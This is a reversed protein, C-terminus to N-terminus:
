TPILEVDPYLMSLAEDFTALRGGMKRALGVLYADTVQAHGLIQSFDVEAYSLSDQWFTYGPWERLRRFTESALNRADKRTRFLYRALAGETIPCGAFSGIPRLWDQAASHHIHEPTVLPILVCSDLLFKM